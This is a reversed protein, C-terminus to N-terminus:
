LSCYQETVPVIVQQEDPLAWLATNILQLALLFMVPKIRM